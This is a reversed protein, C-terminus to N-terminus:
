TAYNALRRSQVHLLLADRVPMVLRADRMAVFVNSAM